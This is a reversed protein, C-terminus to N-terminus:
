LINLYSVLATTIKIENTLNRGEHVGSYPKCAGELLRTVLYRRIGKQGEAIRSRPLRFILLPLFIFGVQSTVTYVYDYGAPM